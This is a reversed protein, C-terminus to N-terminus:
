EYTGEDAQASWWRACSSAAASPMEVSLFTDEGEGVSGGADIGMAPDIDLEIDELPACEVGRVEELRVCDCDWCCGCDCDCDDWSAYERM